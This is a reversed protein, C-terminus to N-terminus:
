DRDISKIIAKAGSVFEEGLVKAIRMKPADDRIGSLVAAMVAGGAVRAMMGVIEEYPRNHGLESRGVEVAAILFTRFMRLSSLEGPDEVVADAAMTTAVFEEFGDARVGDGIWEALRPIKPPNLFPQATTM